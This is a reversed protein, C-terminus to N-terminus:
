RSTAVKKRASAHRDNRAGVELYIDGTTAAINEEKTTKLVATRAVQKGLLASMYRILKRRRKEKVVHKFTIAHNKFLSRIKQFTFGKDWNEFAFMVSLDPPLRRAIAELVFFEYGEIDIKIFGKKYSSRKLRDFLKGLANSVEVIKVPEIIYNKKDISDFGNLGALLAESYTNNERIFAGGWNKKPVYLDYIGEKAGFGYTEIDYSGRDLCIALNVELIKSCLPNPEFCWIHDFMSGNQCSVLGINAGIDILFDNYGNMAYHQIVTNLEKEWHGDVLPPVSIIDGGRLFVNMSRKTILNFLKHRIKSRM